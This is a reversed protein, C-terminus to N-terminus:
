VGPDQCMTIRDRGNGKSQYLAKDASAVLESQEIKGDPIISVAGYSLSVIESVKSSRHPIQLDSVSEKLSECIALAGKADTEPLLLVFEEGGYRAVLDHPRNASKNLIDAVTKLCDDGAQHGYTDNYQKFFDIDCLILSIPLSKRRHHKWQIILQQDFYRRNFINTLGDTNSKRELEMNAQQLQVTREQVKKKLETTFNKETEFAKQKAVIIENKITNIRDALALSLLFVELASGIQPSFRIVSISPLIGMNRLNFVIAGILFVSWAMTYYRAISVGKLWCKIGASLMFFPGFIASFFVVCKIGATYGSVFTLIVGLVCVGMMLLITKDIYPVREKTILFSRCFLGGFFFTMNYFVSHSLNAFDPANPWLYEIDLRDAGLMAFAFSSIYLVYYLYNKDKLSVFLFLNYLLMAAMIGFYIGIIWQEKNIKEAFAIPKWVILPLQMSSETEFRMFVQTTSNPPTLIKSIFNHYKIENNQLVYRDGGHASAIQRNNRFVFLKIDDIHPYAQELLVLQEKELPNILTFKLWYVSDTFGFNPIESTSPVFNETQNPNIVDDLTLKGEEDKLIEIHQGLHFEGKNEEIVVPSAAIATVPFVILLVLFIWINKM